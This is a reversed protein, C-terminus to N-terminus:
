EGKATLLKRDIKGNNTLPMADLKTIKTPVMYRPLSEKLLDGLSKEDIDGTYYLEIRDKERLYVACSNIVGKQANVNAEIEGLEVRHGMHKIQYDKRSVFELLGDERRKALDGTRYIIEPYLKNLPNQVFNESTRGFDNYYGLSVATGRICIEGEDSLKDEEDILLIEVNDFAQGLPIKEDDAFERDAEYWMAVGTGETPGYLNIFRAEPLAKKWRNFQKVPFVEGGFGILKLYAPVKKDLVKFASIMTLATVVWCVTNIKYEDLFDVLKMPFMFLQKPIIVTTCGCKITPYVDKLSADFYLPTQNGFITDEDFRMVECFSEIYDILSRHCVAVGKPIGTSGSTYMIYVPDTDIQSARVASLKVEDVAKNSADNWMFIQGKFGLDQALKETTDDCIMVRPQLTEFIREIRMKPMEEDIPVYPCGAYIAAYFAAIQEPCKKMFVVVPEKTFGEALIASAVARSYNYIQEFTLSTDPDMYAIKNPCTKITNELYQLINKRM